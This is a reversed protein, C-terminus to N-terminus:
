NVRGTGGLGLERLLLDGSFPQISPHLRPCERLDALTARFEYQLQGRRITSNWSILGQNLFRDLSYLLSDVRTVLLISDGRLLPQDWHDLEASERDGHPKAPLLADNGRRPQGMNVM